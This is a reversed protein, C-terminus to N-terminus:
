NADYSSEVFIQRRNEYNVSFSPVGTTLIKLAGDRSTPQIGPTGKNVVYLENGESLAITAPSHTTMIVLMKNKLVFQERIAKLLNKIMLPHLSADIEDLLLVSPFTGSLHGKYISLVLAFLIREGSSLDEFNIEQGQSYFTLSEVEM